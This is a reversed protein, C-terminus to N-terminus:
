ADQYTQIEAAPAAPDVPHQGPEAPPREDIPPLEGTVGTILRAGRQFTLMVLGLQFLVLFRNRFSILFLIHILWWFM